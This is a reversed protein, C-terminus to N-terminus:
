LFIQSLVFWLGAGFTFLLSLGVLAMLVRIALRQLPPFSALPRGLPVPAAPARTWLCVAVATTETHDVSLHCDPYSPKGAEDCTIEIAALSEPTGAAAGSNMIARKVAALACFSSGPSARGACYTLEALTFRAQYFAHELYNETEPLTAVNEIGIGIGRIPGASAIGGGQSSRPVIEGSAPVGEASSTISPRGQPM